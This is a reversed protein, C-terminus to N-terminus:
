ATFSNFTIYNSILKTSFIFLGFILSTIIIDKYMFAHNIAFLTLGYCLAFLFTGFIVENQQYLTLVPIM